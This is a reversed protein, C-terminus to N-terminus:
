SREETEGEYFIALMHKGKSFLLRSTSNQLIYITYLDTKNAFINLLHYM